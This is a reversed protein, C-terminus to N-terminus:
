ITVSSTPLAGQVVTADQIAQRFHHQHCTGLPYQLLYREFFGSRQEATHHILATQTPRLHRIVALQQTPGPMITGRYPLFSRPLYPIKLFTEESGTCWLDVFPARQRGTFARIRQCTERHLPLGHSAIGVVANSRREKFLLALQPALMPLYGPLAMVAGARAGLDASAGPLLDTVQEFGIARARVAAHPEALIPVSCSVQSLTERDFHDGEESTLILLDPRRAWPPLTLVAEPRTSTYLWGAKSTYPHGLYSDILITFGDMELWLVNGGPDIARVQM